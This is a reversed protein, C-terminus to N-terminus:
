KNPLFVSFNSGTNNSYVKIYGGHKSIIERTLYLGIGIGEIESINKGRYFRLFIKPLEDEKIGIGNDKIDVRVFM